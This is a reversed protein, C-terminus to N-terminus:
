GDIQLVARIALGIVFSIAAIGLSITLMEGFRRYFPLDGAVPINFTFVFIVGVAGSLTCLLALYPSHISSSRCSSCHLPSSTPQGPICHLGCHIPVEETRVSPSINM